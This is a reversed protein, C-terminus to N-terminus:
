KARSYSKKKEFSVNEFTLGFGLM